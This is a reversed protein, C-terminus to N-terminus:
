LITDMQEEHYKVFINLIKLEQAEGIQNESSISEYNKVKVEEFSIFVGNM